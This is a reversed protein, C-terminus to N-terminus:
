KLSKLIRCVLHLHFNNIIVNRWASPTGAAVSHVLRVTSFIVICRTPQIKIDRIPIMQNQGFIDKQLVRAYGSNYDLSTYLFLFAIINM